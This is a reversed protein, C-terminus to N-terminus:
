IADGSCAGQSGRFWSRRAASHHNCRNEGSDMGPVATEHQLPWDQCPNQRPEACGAHLSTVSSVRPTGLRGLRSPAWIEFGPESARPLPPELRADFSALGGRSAPREVVAGGLNSRFQAWQPRRRDPGVKTWDPRTRVLNRCFIRWFRDFGPWIQRVRAFKASDSGSIRGFEPVLHPRHPALKPRLQGFDSWLQDFESWARGLELWAHGIRPLTQGFSIDPGFYTSVPLFHPRNRSSTDNKTPTTALTCKGRMHCFNALESGSRGFDVRLQCVQPVPTPLFFADQMGLLQM